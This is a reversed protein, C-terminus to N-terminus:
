LLIASSAAAAADSRVVAGFAGAANTKRPGPSSSAAPWGGSARTDPSVRRHGRSPVEPDPWVGTRGAPGAAGPVPAAASDVGPGVAEEVSGRGGWEKGSQNLAPAPTARRVVYLIICYYVFYAPSWFLAVTKQRSKDVRQVFKKNAQRFDRRTYWIESIRSLFARTNEELFTRKSSM